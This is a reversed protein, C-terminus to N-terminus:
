CRSRMGGGQVYAGKWLSVAYSDVESMAEARTTRGGIERLKRHVDSELKRAGQRARQPDRSGAAFAAASGRSYEASFRRASFGIEAKNASLWSTLSARSGRRKRLLRCSRASLGGGAEM